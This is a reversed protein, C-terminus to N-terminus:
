RYITDSSKGAYFGERNNLNEIYRSLLLKQSQSHGSISSRAPQVRLATAIPSITRFVNEWFEDQCRSLRYQPPNYFANLYIAKLDFFQM